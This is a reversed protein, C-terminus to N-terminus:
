SYLPLLSETLRHKQLEERFQWETHLGVPSQNHELWYKTWSTVSEKRM